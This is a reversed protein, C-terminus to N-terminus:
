ITHEGDERITSHLHPVQIASTYDLLPVSVIFLHRAHSGIPVEVDCCNRAVVVSHAEPVEVCALREQLEPWVGLRDKAQSNIPLLPAKESRAAIMGHHQPVNLPVVATALPGERRWFQRNPQLAVGAADPVHLYVPGALSRETSATISSELQPVQRCPLDALFEPTMLHREHSDMDIPRRISSHTQPPVAGESDPIQLGSIDYVHELPM